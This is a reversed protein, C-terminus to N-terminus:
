RAGAGHNALDQAAWQALAEALALEQDLGVPLSSTLWHFQMWVSEPFFFGDGDGGTLAPVSDAAYRSQRGQARVTGAARSVQDVRRARVDPPSGTGECELYQSLYEFGFECLRLQQGRDLGLADILHIFCGAALLASPGGAGAGAILGAAAEVLVQCVRLGAPHLRQNLPTHCHLDLPDQTVSLEMGEAADRCEVQYWTLLSDGGGLVLDLFTAQGAPPPSGEGHGALEDAYSFRPAGLRERTCTEGAQHHKALMHAAETSADGPDILFAQAPASRGLVVLGEFAGRDALYGFGGTPQLRVQVYNPYRSSTVPERGPQRRQGRLVEFRAM